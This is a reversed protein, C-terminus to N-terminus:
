PLLSVAQEGCLGRLEALLEDDLRVRVDRGGHHVGLEAPLKFVVPSPGPKRRFLEDLRSITDLNM